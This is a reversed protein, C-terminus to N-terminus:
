IKLIRKNKLEGEDNSYYLLQTNTLPITGFKSHKFILSHNQCNDKEVDYIWIDRATGAKTAEEILDM